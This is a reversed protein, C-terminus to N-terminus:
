GNGFCILLLPPLLAFLVVIIPWLFYSRTERRYVLIIELLFIGYFVFVGIEFPGLREHLLLGDDLAFLCCFIGLLLVPFSSYMWARLLGFAGALSTLLIGLNSVLGAEPGTNIRSDRLAAEVDFDMAHLILLFISVCLLGLFMVGFSHLATSSRTLFINALM